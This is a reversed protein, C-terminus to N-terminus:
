PERFYQMENFRITNGRKTIHTDKYFVKGVVLLEEYVLCRLEAPLDLFRSGSKVQQTKLAEMVTSITQWAGTALEVEQSKDAKAKKCSCCMCHEPEAPKQDKGSM